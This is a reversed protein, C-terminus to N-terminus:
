DLETLTSTATFSMENLSKQIDSTSLTGKDTGQPAKYGRRTLVSSGGTAAAASSASSSWMGEDARAKTLVVVMNQGAVDFRCKSSDLAGGSVTFGSAYTTTATKFSVDFGDTSFHVIASAAVIDTVQLLVALAVKTQRFEFPVDQDGVVAAADEAAAAVAAPPTSTEAASSTTPAAEAAVAAAAAANDVPKDLYYGQGQAGLKFAYGPVCGAWGSSPAFAAGPEIVITAPAVLAAVKRPATATAAKPKSKPKTPLVGNKVDEAAKNQAAAAAAAVEKKLAESKKRAELAEENDSALYPNGTGGMAADTVAHKLAVTKNAPQRVAPISKKQESLQATDTAAGAKTEPVEVVGSSETNADMSAEELHGARAESTEPPVVPMTVTLVKATKDFKAKGKKDNVPYPLDVHLYYVDKYTLKLAKPMVDLLVESPKLVKPIDIKYVLEAPRNSAVMRRGMSEFDGMAMQGREVVTFMPQKSDAPPAAGGVDAAAKTEPAPPPASLAGHARKKFTTKGVKMDVRPPEPASDVNTDVLNDLEIVKPTKPLPASKTSSSIEQVLVPPKNKSQIPTKDKNLFGKKVSPKANKAKGKNVDSTSTAAAGAAGAAKKAKKAEEVATVLDAAAQNPDVGAGATGASDWSNAKAQVDIMMAPVQGQKYQIGKVLHYERNLKVELSQKKYGAEIGEIASHVLLDRFQTYGRSLDIADPHFCCDFAPANEGSKDKEMHPPGLSYPLSWNNGEKVQVKTPKTIKVSSVINIFIKEEKKGNILKHTKACFAIEPRILEKGTPVKEENELQSIYAETEARHSPDQLDDMYEAFM